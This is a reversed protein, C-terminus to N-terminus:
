QLLDYLWENATSPINHHQMHKAPHEGLESMQSKVMM